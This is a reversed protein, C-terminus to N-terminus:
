QEARSMSEFDQGDTNQRPPLPPPQDTSTGPKPESTGAETEAATIRYM